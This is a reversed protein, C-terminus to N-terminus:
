YIWILRYLGTGEDKNIVRFSLSEYYHVLQEKCDVCIIRGGSISRTQDFLSKAFDIMKVGLKDEIHDAKGLQGILFATTVGNMLHLKRILKNSIETCRSLDLVTTSLSVYGAIQYENIFLYTRSRDMKEFTVAKTRLFIELDSDRSCSFSNLFADLDSSTWSDMLSKLPIM